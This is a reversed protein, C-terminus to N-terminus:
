SIRVGPERVVQLGEPLEFQAGADAKVSDLIARKDLEWTAPKYRTWFPKRKALDEIVEESVEGKVVPNNLQVRVTALVGNVKTKGLRTMLPLLYHERLSTARKEAAARRATLRAAEIKLAEARAEQERVYLAVREIKEDIRGDLAELAAEIEPTIEGETAELQEDLADRLEALDYLTERAQTAM